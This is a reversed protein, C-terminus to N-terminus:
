PVPSNDHTFCRNEEQYASQSQGTTGVIGIGAITSRRIRTATSEQARQSSRDNTILHTRGHRTSSDTGTYAAYATIGHAMSAAAMAPALLSVRLLLLRHL